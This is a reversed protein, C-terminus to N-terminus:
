IKEDYLIRYGYKDFFKKTLIKIKDVKSEVTSNHQILISKRYALERLNIKIVRILFNLNTNEVIYFELTTNINKQQIFYSDGPNLQIKWYGLNVLNGVTITSAWHDVNEVDIIINTDSNDVDFKPVIKPDNPSSFVIKYNIFNLKGSLFDAIRPYTIEFFNDFKTSPENSIAQIDGTDKDFYIRFVNDINGIALSKAIEEESLYEEQELEVM